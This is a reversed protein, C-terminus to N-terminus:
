KKSYRKNERSSHGMEQELEKAKEIIKQTEPESAKFVRLLQASVGKLGAKRMSSTILKSFSSKSLPGGRSNTFVFGHKNLRAAAKTLKETPETLVTDLKFESPGRSKATKYDRLIIKYGRKTKLLQNPGSKGPLKLTELLRPTHKGYLLLLYAKQANRLDSAKWTDPDGPVKDWLAVGGKYVKGYDQWLAKERPTKKRAERQKEYASTSTNMLRDWAPVKTGYVSAAKVASAALIKRANLPLAKVKGLLGKQSLWQGNEPWETKTKAMKGLRKITSLYTRVSAPALKKNKKKFREVFGM